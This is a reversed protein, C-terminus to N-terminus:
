QTRIIFDIFVISLSKHKINDAINSTINVSFHFVHTFNRSQQRWWVTENETKDAHIFINSLPIPSVFISKYLTSRFTGCVVASFYAVDSGFKSIYGKLNICHSLSLFARVFAKFIAIWIRYDFFELLTYWTCLLSCTM